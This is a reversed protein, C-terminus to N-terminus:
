RKSYAYPVTTAVFPITSSDFVGPKTITPKFASGLHKDKEDKRTVARVPPKFQGSGTVTEGLIKQTPKKYTIYEQTSVRTQKEVMNDFRNVEKDLDYKCANQISRDYTKNKITSLDEPLKFPGYRKDRLRMKDRQDIAPISNEKEITSSGSTSTKLQDPYLYTLSPNSKLETNSTSKLTSNIPVARSKSLTNIYEIKAVYRLQDEVPIGYVTEESIYRHNPKYVGPITKTSVLHHLSKSLEQFRKFDTKEKEDAIEEERIKRYQEVYESVTANQQQVFELYEKRKYFNHVYKRVHYGRYIRQIQSACYHYFQEREQKNREALLQRKLKRGYLYGRFVRQITIVQHRYKLFASRVIWRRYTKQILIAANNERERNAEAARRAEFFSQLVLSPSLDLFTTTM